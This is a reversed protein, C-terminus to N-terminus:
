AYHLIQCLRPPRTCRAATRARATWGSSPRARGLNRRSNVPATTTNVRNLRLAFKDVKLSVVATAIQVILARSPQQRAEAEVTLHQSVANQALRYSTFHFLTM